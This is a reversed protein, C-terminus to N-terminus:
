VIKVFFFEFQVYKLIKALLPSQSITSVYCLDFACTM